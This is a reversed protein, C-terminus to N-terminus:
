RGRRGERRSRREEIAEVQEPTLVGFVEARTATKLLILEAVLDGQTEALAAVTAADYSEPDGAERLAERNDRMAELVPRADSVAVDISARIAERQEETLELEDAIFEMRALPGLFGGPGGPGRGLGPGGFMGMADHRPGGFFGEGPAAHVGTAATMALTLATATLINKTTTM